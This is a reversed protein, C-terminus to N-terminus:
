ARQKVPYRLITKGTDPNKSVDTIYLEHHKGNQVLGQEEMYAFIKTTTEVETSYPGVHMMQVCRGEKFRELTVDPLRTLEPKKAAVEVKLREVMEVEYFDPVRMLLKWQWEERPVEGFHKTEDLFWWLGELKTVASDQGQEKYAFKAAYTLSFLAQIAATHSEGGPAGSGLVTLYYCEPLEVEVPKTPPNYYLKDNKVLDIKEM